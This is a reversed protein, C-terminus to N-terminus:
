VFGAQKMAEWEEDLRVRNREVWELGNRKELRALYEEKKASQQPSDKPPNERGIRAVEQVVEQNALLHESRTIPPSDQPSPSM